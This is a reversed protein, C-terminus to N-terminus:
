TLLPVYMVYVENEEQNTATTGGDPRKDCGLISILRVLFLRNNGRGSERAIKNTTCQRM